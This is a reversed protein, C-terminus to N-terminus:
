NTSTIPKIIDQTIIKKLSEGGRYCIEVAQRESEQLDTFTKGTATLQSVPDLYRMLYNVAVEHVLKLHKIEDSARGYTKIAGSMQECILDVDAQAKELKERQKSVTFLYTIIAIVAVFALSMLDKQQLHTINKGQLINRVSNGYTQSHMSIQRNIENPQLDIPYVFDVAVKLEAPTPIDKDRLSLEDFFPEIAAEYKPILETQLRDRYRNFLDIDDNLVLEADVLHTRAAEYRREIAEAWKHPSEFINSTSRKDLAQISPDYAYLDERQRALIIAQQRQQELQEQQQEALIIAQQRKEELRKQREEASRIKQQKSWFFYGIVAPIGLFIALRPNIRFFILYFIGLIVLGVFKLCGALM